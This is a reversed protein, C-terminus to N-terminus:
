QCQISIFSSFWCSFFVFILCSCTWHSAKLSLLHNEVAVFVGPFINGNHSGFTVSNKTFLFVAPFFFFFLKVKINFSIYCLEGNENPIWLLYLAWPDCNFKTWRKSDMKSDSSVEMPRNYKFLTQEMLILFLQYAM